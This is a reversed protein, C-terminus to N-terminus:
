PDIYVEGSLEESIELCPKNTIKWKVIGYERWEGAVCTGGGGSNLVECVCSRTKYCIIPEGDPEVKFGGGNPSSEYPAWVEGPNLYKTESTKGHLSPGSPNELCGTIAWSPCYGTPCAGFGIASAAPCKITYGGGNATMCKRKNWIYPTGDIPGMDVEDFVPLVDDEAFGNPLFACIGFLFAGIAISWKM